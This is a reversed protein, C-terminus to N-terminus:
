KFMNIINGGTVVFAQEEPLEIICTSKGLGNSGLIDYYSVPARSVMEILGTSTDLAEVYSFTSTNTNM